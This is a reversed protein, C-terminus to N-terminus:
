KPYEKPCKILLQSVIPDIVVVKNIEFVILEVDGREVENHCSQHCYAVAIDCCLANGFFQKADEKHENSDYGERKRCSSNGRDYRVLVRSLGLEFLLHMSQIANLLLVSDVLVEEVSNNVSHSIIM